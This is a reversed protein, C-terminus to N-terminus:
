SRAESAADAVRALIQRVAEGNLADFSTAVIDRVKDMHEKSIYSFMVFELLSLYDKNDQSKRLIYGILQDESELSLNTNGLLAAVVDLPLRDIERTEVLYGFRHSLHNLIVSDPPLCYVGSGVVAVLTDVMQKTNVRSWDGMLCEELIRPSEIEVAIDVLTQLQTAPISLQKSETVAEVLMEFMKYGEESAAYESKMVYRKCCVDSRRLKMVKESLFVAMLVPVSVVKGDAFVFDFGRPWRNWDMNNVGEKCVTIEYKAVGPVLDTVLVLRGDKADVKGFKKLEDVDPKVRFTIYVGTKDASFSLIPDWRALGPLITGFDVDSPLDKFHLTKDPAFIDEEEYQVYVSVGSLFAFDQIGRVYEEAPQVDCSTLKATLYTAQTRVHTLKKFILMLSLKEPVKFKTRFEAETLQPINYFCVSVKSQPRQLAIDAPLM